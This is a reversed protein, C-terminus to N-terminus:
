PLYKSDAYFHPELRVVIMKKAGGRAGGAAGGRGGRGGRPPGGRGRGGPAGRGGGPNINALVRSAHRYRNKIVVSVVAVDVVTVVLVVVSVVAADVVTVAAVSAAVVAVVEATVM